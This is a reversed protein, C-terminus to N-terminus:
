EGVTNLIQEKLSDRVWFGAEITLRNLLERLNSILGIQKAQVLIGLTGIVSLGLGQAVARGKKEDIILLDASMEIALVIAEAEGADIQQRLLNVYDKRQIAKVYVWEESLLTEVSQNAMERLEDVVVQPIIIQSYLASLLHTHQIHILNSLTTTDSVVVM